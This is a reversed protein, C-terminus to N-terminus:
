QKIQKVFFKFKPLILNFLLWIPLTLLIYKLWIWMIWFIGVFIWTLYVYDNYIQELFNVDNIISQLVYNIYKEM